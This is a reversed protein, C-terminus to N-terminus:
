RQLWDGIYNFADIAGRIVRQECISFPPQNIFRRTEAWKAGRAEGYSTYYSLGNERTLGLQDGIHKAIYAGGLTSGEIVYLIGLATSPNYFRFAARATVPLREIRAASLGCTLLDRRLLPIKRRVDFFAAARSPFAAAGATEWTHCFGYWRGLQEVYQSLRLDPKMVDLRTELAVHADRTAAKLRDTLSTPEPPSSAPSHM